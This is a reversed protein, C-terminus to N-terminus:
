LDSTRIIFSRFGEDIMEALPLDPPLPRRIHCDMMVRFIRGMEEKRDRAAIPDSCKYGSSFQWGEAQGSSRSQTFPIFAGQTSFDSVRLVFDSVLGAFAPNL